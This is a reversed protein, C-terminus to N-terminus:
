DQIEVRSKLPLLDFLTEVDENRMRLCGKSENGGVSDNDRTGHIGYSSHPDAFGLWRTGLPNDVHGPPVKRGRDRDYFEPNELRSAVAFVGDPTEHGEQGLGVGWEALYCDGILLYLRYESKRCVLHAPATPLLLKQGVRISDSSLGNLHRILGSALPVGRELEWRNAIEWLSDGPRVEYAELLGSLPARRNLQTQAIAELKTRLREVYQEPVGALYAQSYAVWSEVIRGAEEAKQGSVLLASIEDATRAVRASERGLGTPASLSEFAKKVPDPAPATSPGAEIPHVKAPVAQQEQGKSSGADSEAQRTGDSSESAFFKDYAIYGVLGLVLVSLLFNKM